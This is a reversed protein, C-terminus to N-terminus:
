TRLENENVLVSVSVLVNVVLVNVVLVFRRVRVGLAIPYSCIM